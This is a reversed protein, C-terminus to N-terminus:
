LSPTVQWQGRGRPAPRSLCRGTVVGRATPRGTQRDPREPGDSVVRRAHGSRDESASEYRQIHDELARARKHPPAVSIRARVRRTPLRSCFRLDLHVRTPHNSSCSTAICGRRRAKMSTLRSRQGGAPPRQTRRSREYSRVRSPECRGRLKAGLLEAAGCAITWVGWRRSTGNGNRDAEAGARGGRRGEPAIDGGHPDHYRGRTAGSRNATEVSEIVM